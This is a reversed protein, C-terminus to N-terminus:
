LNAGPSADPQRDDLAGPTPPTDSGISRWLKMTGDEQRRFIAVWNGSESTTEGRQRDTITFTYPAEYVGLDGSRAVTVSGTGLAWNVDAAEMQAKMGALDAEPGVTNQTGHFIGVYDPADYSAARDADKANYAAVVGLAGERVEKEVEDVDVPTGAASCGALAASAAIGLMLAALRRPKM